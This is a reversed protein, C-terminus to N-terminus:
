HTIWESLRPGILKWLENHAQCYSKRNNLVPHKLHPNYGDNKFMKDPLFMNNIATVRERVGELPDDPEIFEGDFEQSTFKDFDPDSSAFQLSDTEFSEWYKQEKPPLAALDKLIAVVVKDGSKLTRKGYEVYVNAETQRRNEPVSLYYDDTTVIVGGMVSDEVRWREQQDLYRKLVGLEFYKAAIQNGGLHLLNKYRGHDEGRRKFEDELVGAGPFFVVGASERATGKCYGLGRSELHRLERLVMARSIGTRHSLDVETVGTFHTNWHAVAESLVRSRSLAM